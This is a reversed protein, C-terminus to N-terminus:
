ALNMTDAHTIDENSGMVQALGTHKTVPIYLGLDNKLHLAFEIIETPDMAMDQDLVGGLRESLEQYKERVEELEGEREFPAGQDMKIKSLTEQAYDRNERISTVSTGNSIHRIRGALKRAVQMYPDQEKGDDDVNSELLDVLSANKENKVTAVHDKDGNERTLYFSPEDSMKGVVLQLGGYLGITETRYARVRDAREKLAHALGKLGGIYATSGEQMGPVASNIELHIPENAEVIAMEKEKSEIMADYIKIKSETLEIRQGIDAQEDLHADHARKLADLKMRAEIFDKIEPNGTTVALIDEFGLETEEDLEREALEPKRMAQKIMGLKRNLTEWMFLDFSNETTYTFNFVEKFMNGQRDMRGLRQEIDAPKWPPDLQHMAVLRDQVNTGVGMKSTSGLLVRIDGNRVKEFLEEKADDNAADHIFAIEDEPIGSAILKAKIDDYVNFKGKGTPSSFDCFVMQTAKEEAYKEYIDVIKGVCLNVKSDPADDLEPHILRPDLSAKRGDTAISLLIDQPLDGLTDPDELLVNNEWRKKDNAGYLGERVAMALSEAQGTGGDKGARVGRARAEIYKMFQLMTKSQPAVVTEHTVNPTPLNLDERSKFDIFTRIMKILEPVNKFRSLRSKVQYGGGEPKIEMQHRIEGFLAMWDNFNNIGSAKLLDPRLMRTFTYCEVVSNSIPTGTAMMVGYEGGHHSQLYRSKMFMDWARVSESTSVGPIQKASDISLNKYYHAEDIGMFDIGMEELNLVNDRNKEMSDYTRKLKAELNKIKKQIDRETYNTGGGATRKEQILANELRFKEEELMNAEFDKPVGIRSYSSHTCIVLDWDGMACRAVFEGRKAPSINEKDLVLIRSSPYISQADAAMQYLMHNPVVIIPKKWRSLQKGRIATAILQMTKGAGVVHSTMANKGSIARWVFDNQHKRPVWTPAMGPYVMHSGDPDVLRWTNFRENYIDALRKARKPDKFVWRNFADSIEEFKAQAKLTEAQNVKYEPPNNSIKDRVVPQTHTFLNDLLRYVHARETGWRHMASQEDNRAIAAVSLSSNSKIRWHRNVEDFVASASSTGTTRLGLHESIFDNVVDKPLWFADIGVKIQSPKLPEPLAEKLAKVNGDFFSDGQAAIEAAEIKPKLNESLYTDRTILDNTEPDVFVLGEALLMNKISEETDAGPKGKLLECMYGISVKGTYALSLALAEAPTDAHSPAEATPSVVRRDFIATKKVDKTDKDVEELGYLFPARPDIRFIKETKKENLHGYRTVFSDYRENLQSRLESIQHEIAPTEAKSQLILLERATDMLDILSSMKEFQKKPVKHPKASVLKEGQFNVEVTRFDGTEQNFFITGPVLDDTDGGLRQQAQAANVDSLSQSSKTVTPMAINGPLRSLGEDILQELNQFSTERGEVTLGVGHRTTVMGLDGIIQDPNNKFYENITVPVPSGPEYEKDDIFVAHNAMLPADISATNVFAKPTYSPEFDGKKQLFIIDTMVQTQTTKNFTSTPLRVAGMFHAKESIAKRVESDQSDMTYSSTVFGIVGGPKVKELSKKFFYNHISDNWRPFDSDFVKYEGFPVNSIAVDYFNDALKSDELGANIVSAEPHIKQAIRATLPDIEVGTFQSEGTISEPAYSKFNLLGCSPELIRKRSVGLREIAKWMPRIVGSHTYHANLITSKMSAYENASMKSKYTYDLLESEAKKVFAPKDPSGYGFMNSHISGWGSYEALTSTEEPTPSREEEELQFLTKIAALNDEVRSARTKGKADHGPDFRFGILGSSQQEEAPQRNSGHDTRDSGDESRKRGTGRENPRQQGISGSDAEREDPKADSSVPEGNERGAGDTESVATADLDTDTAVFGSDAEFDTESPGGAHRGADGTRVAGAGVASHSQSDSQSGAGTRPRLTGDGELGDTTETNIGGRQGAPSFIGANGSAHAQPTGYHETRGHGSGADGRQADAPRGGNTSELDSGNRGDGQSQDTNNSGTGNDDGTTYSAETSLMDGNFVGFGSSVRNLYQVNGWGSPSVGSDALSIASEVDAIRHRMVEPDGGEAILNELLSVLDDKTKPRPGVEHLVGTAETLATALEPRFESFSAAAKRDDSSLSAYQANRVQYLLRGAEADTLREQLAMQQEYLDDPAELSPPADNLRELAESLSATERGYAVADLASTPKNYPDAAPTAAISEPLDPLELSAKEWQQRFESWIPRPLGVVTLKNQENLSQTHVVLSDENGTGKQGIAVSAISLVPRRGDSPSDEKQCVLFSNTEGNHSVSLGVWQGVRTDELNDFAARIKDGATLEEGKRAALETTTRYADKRNAVHADIGYRTFDLNVSEVSRLGGVDIARVGKADEVLTDGDSNIGVVHWDPQVPGSVPTGTQTDTAGYREHEIESITKNLQRVKDMLRGDVIGGQRDLQEQATDRIRILDELSLTDNDSEERRRGTENLVAQYHSSLRQKIEDGALHNFARLDQKLSDLASNNLNALMAKDAMDDEINAIRRNIIQDLRERQTDTVWQRPRGYKTTKRAEILRNNLDLLDHVSSSSMDEVYRQLAKETLARIGDKDHGDGALEIVQGDRQTVTIGNDSLTMGEPLESQVSAIFRDVDSLREQQGETARFQTYLPLSILHAPVDDVLKAEPFATKVATYIGRFSSLSEGTFVFLHDKFFRGQLGSDGLTRITSALRDKVELLRNESVSTDEDPNLPALMVLHRGKGDRTHLARLGISSLDIWPRTTISQNAM